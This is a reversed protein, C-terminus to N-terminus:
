RQRKLIRHRERQWERERIAARKDHKKKGRALAIQLKVRGKSWYLSLPVVTYGRRTVATGLQALEGRHLLLKRTREPDAETSTTPLPTIRAGILYAEGGQMLVHGDSLQVQGARISKAEWGALVLGAEFRDELLYDHRARRNETISKFQM